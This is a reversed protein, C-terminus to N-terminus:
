ILYGSIGQQLDFYARMALCDAFDPSRGLASIFDKKSQIRVKGDEDARDRKVQELEEIIHNVDPQRLNYREIYIDQERIKDAL